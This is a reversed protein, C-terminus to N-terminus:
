GASNLNPDDPTVGAAVYFSLRMASFDPFDQPSGDPNKKNGGDPDEGELWMFISFRYVQGYRIEMVDPSSVITRGENFYRLESYSDCYDTLYRKVDNANNYTEETVEDATVKNKRTYDYYDHKSTSVDNCFVRIRLFDSLKTGNSSAQEASLNVFYHFYAPDKSQNSLYFRSYTVGQLSYVKNDAAPIEQRFQDRIGQEDGDGDLSELYNNKDMVEVTEMVAESAGAEQLYTTPDTVEAIGSESESAKKYGRGLSLRSASSNRIRISYNGVYTSLFAVIVFAVVLVSAISTIIITRKKRTEKKHAAEIPTDERRKMKRKESM